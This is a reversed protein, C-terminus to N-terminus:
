DVAPAAPAALAALAALAVTCHAPRAVDGPAGAAVRVTRRGNAPM